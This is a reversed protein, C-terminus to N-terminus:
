NQSTSKPLVIVTGREFRYTLGHPDLLRTLFEAAPLRPLDVDVKRALDVGARKLLTADYELPLGQKKLEVFLERLSVGGAQLQFSQKEISQTPTVKSKSQSSGSSGRLVSAMMEHQEITGRVILKNGRSKADLGEIASQLMRLTPAAPKGHLAYTREIAVHAPIPVLRVGVERPVWEFTLDFQNLVLSLAESATAEPITAGAWLDHPVQDIGVISIGFLRGIRGVIESPRELDGWAITTRQSRLRDLGASSVSAKGLEAERMAILTRLRLVPAAPAVILCNGVRTVAVQTAQAVENVAMRLPHDGTEMRVPQDPDVRRDLLLSVESDHSLRRLISRLPVGKWSGSIPQEMAAAFRRGTRYHAPLPDPFLSTSSDAWASAALMGLFAVLVFPAFFGRLM